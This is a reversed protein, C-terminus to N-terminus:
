MFLWSHRCPGPESNRLWYLWRSLYLVTCYLVTCYLVTCYLVALQEPCVKVGEGSGPEQVPPWVSDDQVPSPLFVHFQIVYQFRPISFRCTEIRSPIVEGVKVQVADLLSDLLHGARGANLVVAPILSNM